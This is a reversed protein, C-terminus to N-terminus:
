SIELVVRLSNEERFGDVMIASFGGVKVPGKENLADGHSSYKAFTFLVKGSWVAAEM